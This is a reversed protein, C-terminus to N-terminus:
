HRNDCNLNVYGKSQDIYSLVPCGFSVDEFGLILTPRNKLLKGIWQESSKANNSLFSMPAPSTSETESLLVSSIVKDNIDCIVVHECPFSDNKTFEKLYFHNEKSKFSYTGSLGYGLLAQKEEANLSVLPFNKQDIKKWIIPQMQGRVFPNKAGIYVYSKHYYHNISDTLATRNLKFGLMYDLASHMPQSEDDYVNLKAVAEVSNIAFSQMLDHQYDYVFLSDTEKIGTGMLLRKRYKSKLEFYRTEEAKKNELSPIVLRDVSDAPTNSNGPLNDIDSVSVFVATDGESIVVEDLDFLSISDRRMEPVQEEFTSTKTPASASKKQSEQKPKQKCSNISIIAVLAFAFKFNVISWARKTSM